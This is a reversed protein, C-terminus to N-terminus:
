GELERTMIQEAQEDTPTYEKVHDPSIYAVTRFKRSEIQIRYFPELIGDIPIVLGDLIKGWCGNYSRYLDSAPLNEIIVWQGVLKRLNAADM